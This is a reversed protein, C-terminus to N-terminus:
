SKERVKYRIEQGRKNKDELERGLERDGNM